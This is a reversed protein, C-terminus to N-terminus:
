ARLRRRGVAGAVLLGLGVGLLPIAAFGTFALGDDDGAAAIQRGAQTVTSGSEQEGLAAGEDGDGNGEDASEEQQGQVGAGGDTEQQGLVGGETPYQATGASGDGALGSVALGAGTTSLLLGLVLMMTIALRSKMLSGRRPVRRPREAAGLVRVKILDLDLASLEPREARLRREVPHLEPTLNHDSQKM